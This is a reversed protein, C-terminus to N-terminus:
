PAGVSKPRYGHVAAGSPFAFGQAAGDVYQMSWGHPNDIFGDLTADTPSIIKRM